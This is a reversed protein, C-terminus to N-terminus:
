VQFPTLKREEAIQRDRQIEEDTFKRDGTFHVVNVNPLREQVREALKEQTLFTRIWADNHATLISRTTNAAFDDGTVIEPSHGLSYPASVYLPNPLPADIRPHAYRIRRGDAGHAEMEISFGFEIPSSGLLYASVLEEVCERTSRVVVSSSRHRELEGVFSDLSHAMVPPKRHEIFHLVREGIAM